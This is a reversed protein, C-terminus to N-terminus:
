DDKKIFFIFAMVPRRSSDRAVFHISDFVYGKQTWENLADEVTEDTVISLEVVKYVM